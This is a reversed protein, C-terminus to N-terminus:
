HPPQAAEPPKGDAGQEVDENMSKQVNRFGPRMLELKLGNDHLSSIISDVEIGKSDSWRNPGPYVYLTPGPLLCSGFVLTRGDALRLGLYDALGEEKIWSTSDKNEFGYQHAIRTVKQIDKPSFKRGLSYERIFLVGSCSMSFVCILACLFIKMINTSRRFSAVASDPPRTPHNLQYHATPMWSKNAKKSSKHPRSIFWTPELILFEEQRWM